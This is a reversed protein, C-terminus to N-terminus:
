CMPRIDVTSDKTIGFRSLTWGDWLVQSGFVLRFNASPIHTKDQVLRRFDAVLMEQEVDLVLTEAQQTRSHPFSSSLPSNSHVDLQTLPMLLTSRLSSFFSAGYEKRLDRGRTQTGV